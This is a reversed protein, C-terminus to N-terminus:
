YENNKEFIIIGNIVEQFFIPEKESLRRFEEPAKIIAKINKPSNKLSDKIKEEEDTIIMLDIDSDPLNEGRSTSGFLIIKETFSFTKNLIKKIGNVADLIKFQKVTPNQLNAMYLIHGNRSSDVLNEKILSKLAFYAGAKSVKTFSQITQATVAEKNNRVLFQLVKQQNTSFLLNEM